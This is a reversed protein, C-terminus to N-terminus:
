WYCSGEITQHNPPKERDTPRSWHENMFMRLVDPRERLWRSGLIGFYMQLVGGVYVASKGSEFIHNCVLNGYGGCSVLAVDYTDRIADLRRTFEALHVGFYETSESKGQTQPPKITAFSCEPFLDVGNYLEARIPLKERISEEFTSVILIRKGRLAHTWPIDYIYHFIDFAFAWAMEQPARYTDTIYDHSQHIYPYVDGTKEWGTYMECNSFAKLYKRSYEVIHDGTQVLIGANNQFAPLQRNIFELIEPSAGGSQDIMNGVWAINNEIGAIRPIVFPKDTSWMSLIYNYLRLNDNYRPPKVTERSFTDRYYKHVRVFTDSLIEDITYGVPLVTGWPQKIADKETYNRQTSTHYHYIRIFAPDNLVDFGLIRFLYILKNDCGPMGMPFAFMKRQKEEIGFRTHFIWADQSDFRPGFIRSQSPDIANYEYRLQAYMKKRLHIDSYLLNELTSDFLIDANAMVIYGRIDRDAVYQLIDSYKLRKGIDTQVLKASTCGIEKNKYIRENLLHVKTIHRNRINQHLCTRIENQRASNADIYYQLFLHVEDVNKDPLRVSDPSILPLIM